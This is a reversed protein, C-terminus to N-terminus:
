FITALNSTMLFSPSSSSHIDTAPPLPPPAPSLFLATLASGACINEFLTKYRASGTAACHRQMRAAANCSLMAVWCQSEANRSLMVCLQTQSTPRFDGFSGDILLLSATTLVTSVTQVAPATATSASPSLSLPPLLDVSIVPHLAQVQTPLAKYM